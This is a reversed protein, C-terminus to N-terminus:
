WNWTVDPKSSPADPPPAKASEPEDKKQTTNRKRTQKPQDDAKKQTEAQQEAMRRLGILLNDPNGLGKMLWDVAQNATAKLVVCLEDYENLFKVMRELDGGLAQLIAEKHAPSLLYKEVFQNLRAVEPADPAPSSSQEENESSFEGEMIEGEEEESLHEIEVNPGTTESPLMKQTQVPKAAVLMQRQFSTANDILKPMLKQWDSERFEIHVFFANGSKMKGDKDQYKTKGPKLVMRLPIGALRGNTLRSITQLSSWIRTITQYSTTYYVAVSGIVPRRAIMFSLRGSPKCKRSQLEQCTGSLACNTWPVYREGPHQKALVEGAIAASRMANLGDGFCKRESSAWWSMDTQFVEEISNHLFIIEFERVPRDTTSGAFEENQVKQLAQQLPKDEIWEGNPDKTAFHFHDLKTPYNRKEDAPLGISVKTGVTQRVIPEGDKTHTLGHIM